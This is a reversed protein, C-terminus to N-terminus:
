NVSPYNLAPIVVHIKVLYDINSTANCLGTNNNFSDNDSKIFVEGLTNIYCICYGDMTFGDGSESTQGYPVIFTYSESPTLNPTRLTAVKVGTARSLKGNVSPNYVAEINLTATELGMKVSRSNLKITDINPLFYSGQPTDTLNRYNNSSNLRMYTETLNCWKAKAVGDIQYGMFMSNTVVIYKTDSMPSNTNTFNFVIPVGDKDIIEQTLYLPNTFHYNNNITLRANLEISYAFQQTDPYCKDLIVSAVSKQRYFVSGKYHAMDRIFGHCESYFCNGGEHKISVYFGIMDIHDFVMDSSKNYIGVCNLKTKSAELYIYRFKNVNGDYIAIGIDACNIIKINNFNKRRDNKIDIACLSMDNCDLIINEIIGSMSNFSTKNDFCLISENNTAKITAGQLDIHITGNITLKDSIKYIKNSKSIIKLNNSISDDICKQLNITDDTIGDGKCNYMEPTVFTSITDIQTNFEDITNQFTEVNVKKNIENKNEEIKASNEEAKIKAYDIKNKNDVIENKNQEIKNNLQVQVNEDVIIKKLKEYDNKIKKMLVSLNTDSLKIKESLKEIDKGLKKWQQFDIANQDQLEKVNQKIKNVDIDSM